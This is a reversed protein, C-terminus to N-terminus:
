PKTSALGFISRQSCPLKHDCMYARTATAVNRGISLILKLGHNTDIHSYLM